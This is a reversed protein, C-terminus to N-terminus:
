LLLARQRCAQPTVGQWKKFLRSFHYPDTVGVRVGVEGVRLPTTRLLEAARAMRERQLWAQPPFGTHHKFQRFATAASCGGARYLERLPFNRDLRARIFDQMARLAPPAEPREPRLRPLDAALQRLLVTALQRGFELEQPQMQFWAVIYEALPELAATQALRGSQVGELGPLHADRRGRYDPHEDTDRHQIRWYPEDSPAYDPVLHVGGLLWEAEGRRYEVAHLWPLWLFHGAAFELPSGGNVRVEGVGGRCWLLMRSRVRPNLMRFGPPFAAHNAYLICGRGADTM